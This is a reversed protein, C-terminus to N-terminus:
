YSLYPRLWREIEKINKNKRKTYDEIQDKQLKGVTFYKSDPHGFYFGSVSSAPFMAFNETLSIGTNKTVELLQFLKEKETHDPCAPYGPAPRIGRYKESILEDSSLKEHIAYGWYKKRVQEHAYEAFAEALRDGLAKVMIAHYDDNESEYKKACEEVGHGTTVAFAGLYDSKNSSKPAIFDALAFNVQEKQKINQQRLTHFTTLIKERSEDQYIQIDDNVRNAPFIGIVGKAQFLKEKIIKDLIILADKFLIRAQEGMKEDDLIRPYRGKLEWALFFPTWDIYKSLINLDIDELLHIGFQKPRDIKIKHWNEKFAHQRAKELSLCKKNLSRSKYSKRLKEQEIILEAIFDKKTSEGLIKNVLNTVRSADEVYIVSHDYAESIKIATHASSTTAGGIFLPIKFSERKMEKAVHVMEDLSPTILGSLGIVDVNHKKAESLIKESPVMVGLDIVEYNNCSLVVGVINKGIDHVDGKVTAILFKIKHSKGEKQEKMYPLLYAVAKKMVRASKVVQPLFMKGQGFLDGVVGMGSMLPGEIVKLPEKLKKRAEEVDKDIYDVIGKVLAYSLREEINKSRWEDRVKKNKQNLGITTKNKQNEAYEILKETSDDRRNLIVDEVLKLLLPPSINEYVALMGANVIAMDLGASIAHYLFASHMAERVHNNGRFSFSINSVGGSIRAFPCEKKIASIADIFDLAYSNHENMGTAVTLINPDFIIDQPLIGVENVLINYARVCIKVKDEKTAAQGNEDFAMVVMAAGYRQVLTAQEKFKQEGEKLSLSNVISKGQVCKLGAEIVSWKSSDIMIPIRSIDPESAILNLFDTMLGESDLLAEDFCVDLINAGNEVQQRAINLADDLKEELILKRFKPSGMVNTREGIIIFGKDETLNLPELGSLRMIPAMTKIKRPPASKTKNVIAQIHEPTTGCCGGIINVWKNKTFDDLLSAIEEPTQDYGGFANPLGANPYCSIYTDAIKSLEEIYPRMEQAGLACNIGVSIPNAHTVSNWFAEIMQGSLTRGSNDTITVSLSLPIEENKERMLCKVAFIAAKLNLTDFSTELLFIDVDAEWLIKAQEYYIEVLEDFCIARFGPRNVDPSLSATRNTPGFAGAVFCPHDNSNTQYFKKIAKKAVKVSAENLEKVLNKLDYDAQSIANANFTNTEIINAGAQLFQYHINQIIDPQTISLLDSNGKLPKSHNKFHEGRFDSEELNYQQIMTGMAGDLFLIQQNLVQKLRNLKNLKENFIM